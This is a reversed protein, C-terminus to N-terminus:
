GKGQRYAGRYDPPFGGVEASFIPVYEAKYVYVWGVKITGFTPFGIYHRRSKYTGQLKNYDMYLLDANYSVIYMEKEFDIQLLDVAYRKEFNDLLENSDICGWYAFDHEASDDFFSTSKSLHIESYSNLYIIENTKKIGWVLLLCIFVLIFAIFIINKAFLKM